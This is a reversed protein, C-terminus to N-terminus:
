RLLQSAIRERATQYAQLLTQEGFPIDVTDLRPKSVRSVIANADTELIIGGDVTEDLCLVVLDLNDMVSRKEVQYRLLTSVADYFANFMSLLILENEEMSGIVYFFIDINSRYLVVQNDYLIVEGQARKTKDFLGKEFAKQEKLSAHESGYYKALVRNGESDLLIVAKISYLSLNVM